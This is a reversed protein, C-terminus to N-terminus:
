GARCVMQGPFHRLQSSLYRPQQRLGGSGDAVLMRVMELKSGDLWHLEDQMKRVRLRANDTLLRMAADVNHDIYVARVFAACAAAKSPAGAPRRQTAVVVGAVAISALGGIILWRARRSYIRNM